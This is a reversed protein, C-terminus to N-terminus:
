LTAVIADQNTMKYKNRVHINYYIWVFEAEKLSQWVSIPVNKHVISKGDCKIILHGYENDCTYYHASKMWSSEEPNVSETTKFNTNEICSIAEIESNWNESIDSCNSKRANFYIGVFILTIFLLLRRM